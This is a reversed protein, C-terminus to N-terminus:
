AGVASKQARARLRLAIFAVVLLALGILILDEYLGIFGLVEEWRAGLAAGLTVLASNYLLSGLTVFCVFRPLPMRNMGAPLAILARVVPVFRGLSVLLVGYRALVALARDLDAEGLLAYRGFRRFFARILRDDAWIGIHYVILAGSVSGITGSLVVGVFSFQGTSVLFGGFLMILESPIPPFFNEGAMALAIGPYGLAMVIQEVLLRVAEFFQAMSVGSEHEM